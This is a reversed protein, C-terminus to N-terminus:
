SSDLKCYKKFFGVTKKRLNVQMSRVFRCADRLDGAVAGSDEMLKLLWSLTRFTKM